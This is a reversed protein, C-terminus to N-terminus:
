LAFPLISFGRGLVSAPDNRPQEDHDVLALNDLEGDVHTNELLYRTLRVKAWPWALGFTIGCVMFNSLIIWVFSGVSATSRFTIGGELSMQQYAYNRLKVFAFSFCVLIGIMYIFYPLLVSMILSILFSLMEEQSNMGYVSYHLMQTMVPALMILAVAIFPVFLLMAKLYIFTCTKVNLNIAFRHKGYQLNNVLLGYWQAAYIGQMLATGVLGVLVSLAIGVIIGTMSQSSGAITFVLGMVATVLIAILLPCGLMVWWARLPSAKFSFRLGNLKTMLLQYRLGQMILFPAFAIFLLVMCLTLFTNEYVANIVFVVYLLALCIWGVFIAGGTAHYSFRAGALETNEYFYRRARVMAWPLFLGATFVTLLINVLWVPFYGGGSGQFSFAHTKNGALFKNDDSM